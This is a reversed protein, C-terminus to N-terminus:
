GRSFIGAPISYLNVVSTGFFSIAGVIVIAIMAVMLGYEVATAGREDREFLEPALM